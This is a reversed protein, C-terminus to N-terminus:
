LQHLTGKLSVQDQLSLFVKMVGLFTVLPKRIELGVPENEVKSLIPNKDGDDFAQIKTEGSIEM